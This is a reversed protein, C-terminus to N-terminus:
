TSCLRALISGNYARADLEAKGFAYILEHMEISISSVHYSQDHYSSGSSRIWYATTHYCRDGLHSTATYFPALMSLIHGVTEGTEQGAFLTTQRRQRRATVLLAFTEKNHRRVPDPRLCGRVSRCAPAPCRPTPPHLFFFSNSIPHLNPVTVPFLFM